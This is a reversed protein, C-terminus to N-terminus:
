PGMEVLTAETTIKARHSYLSDRYGRLSFVMQCRPRWPTLVCDCNEARLRPGRTCGPNTILARPASQIEKKPHFLTRAVDFVRAHSTEHEETDSQSSVHLNLVSMWRFHARPEFLLETIRHDAFRCPNYQKIQEPFM